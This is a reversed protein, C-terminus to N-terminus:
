ILNSWVKDFKSSVIQFFKTQNKWHFSESFKQLSFNKYFNRSITLSKKNLLNIKLRLVDVAIHVVYPQYSKEFM